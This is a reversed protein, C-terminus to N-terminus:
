AQYRGRQAFKAIKPQYLVRSLIWTIVVSTIFSTLLSLQVQMLSILFTSVGGLVSALWLRTEIRPLWVKTMAFLASLGLILGTGVVFPLQFFLSICVGVLLLFVIRVLESFGTSFYLGLALAILPVGYVQELSMVLIVLSLQGLFGLVQNM